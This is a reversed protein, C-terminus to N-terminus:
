IEPNLNLVPFKRTKILKISNDFQCFINRGATALIRYEVGM